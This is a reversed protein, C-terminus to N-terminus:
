RAGAERGSFREPAMYNMTGIPTGATTLRTDGRAEAIGFDVLYAFDTQTVIINHPKIDRHTLGKAHAADLADGIQAIIAVARSPELPGKAMGFHYYKGLAWRVRLPWSTPPRTVLWALANLVYQQRFLVAAALNAQAM